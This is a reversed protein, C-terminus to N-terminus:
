EDMFESIFNSLNDELIGLTFFDDEENGTGEMAKVQKLKDLNEQVEADTFKFKGM